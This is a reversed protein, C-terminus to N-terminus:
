YMWPSGSVDVTGTPVAKKSSSGKNYNFWANWRKMFDDYSESKGRIPEGTGPNSSPGGGSSPRPAFGKTQQAYQYNEEEEPTRGGYFTTGKSLGGNGWIGVNPDYAGPYAAGPGSAGYPSSGGGGGGSRSSARSAEDSYLGAKAAMRRAEIEMKEDSWLRAAAPSNGIGRDYVDENFQGQARRLTRDFEIDVVKSAAAAYGFPDFGFSSGGGSLSSPSAGGVGAGQTPMSSPSSGFNKKPDEMSIEGTKQNVWSRTQGDLKWDDANFTNNIPHNYDMTWAGGEWKYGKAVSDRWQKETGGSWIFSTYPDRSFAISM